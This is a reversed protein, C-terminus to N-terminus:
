AAAEEWGLIDSQALQAALQIAAVDSLFQNIRRPTVGLADAIEEVNKGEVALARLRGYIGRLPPLERTRWDEDEEESQGVLSDWDDEDLPVAGAQHVEHRLVQRVVGFVHNEFSGRIPDHTEVLRPYKIFITHCVDGFDIRLDRALAVINSSFHKEFLQFTPLKETDM